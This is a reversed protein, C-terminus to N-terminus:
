TSLYVFLRIRDTQSCSLVLVLAFTLSLDILACSVSVVAVSVESSVSRQAVTKMLGHWAVVQLWAANDSVDFKSVTSQENFRLCLAGNSYGSILRKLIAITGHFYPEHFRRVNYLTSGKKVILKTYQGDGIDVILTRYMLKGVDEDRKNKLIRVVM